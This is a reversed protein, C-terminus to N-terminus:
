GAGIAKDINYKQVLLALLGLVLWDKIRASCEDLEHAESTSLKSAKGTCFYRGSKSSPPTSM